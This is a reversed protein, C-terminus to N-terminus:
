DHFRVVPVGAIPARFSVIAGCLPHEALLNPEVGSSLSTVYVTKMDPGGFCPMTPRLVPLDIFEILEGDASFRNLRSASPGASWYTGAMDCAGGDARGLLESEVVLHRRNQATGAATDFDWVDIWMEGRSDSHYMLTGETNWALGNSTSLGDAIIRVDGDPGIRYLRAAPAGMGTADMSGVWFAGDPGVKGDNLRMGPKAHGIRALRERAGTAMDFLVVDETLAVVLRGSRCLGLAGVPEGFSWHARAGGAIELAHVTGAPIDTWFLRGNDGDWVPSEGVAFREAVVTEIKPVAEKGEM